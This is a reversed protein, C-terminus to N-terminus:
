FLTGQLKALAFWNSFMADLVDEYQESIWWTKTEARWERATYMVEAKLREILLEDYSFAIIWGPRGDKSGGKICSALYHVIRAKSRARAAYKWHPSNTTM